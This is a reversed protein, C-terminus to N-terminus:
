NFFTIRGTHTACLGTSSITWHLPSAGPSATTSFAKHMSRIPSLQSVSFVFLRLCRRDDNAQNICQIRRRLRFMEMRTQVELKWMSYGTKNEPRTAHWISKNKLSLSYYKLKYTFFLFLSVFPILGFSAPHCRLLYGDYPFFKM